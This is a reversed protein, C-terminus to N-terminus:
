HSTHHTVEGYLAAEATQFASIGRQSRSKVKSTSTGPQIDSRAYKLSATENSPDQRGRAAQQRVTGERTLVAAQVAVNHVMNLFQDPSVLGALSLHNTKMRIPEGTRNM